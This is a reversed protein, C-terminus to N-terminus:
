DGTPEENEWGRALRYLGFFIGAGLTTFTLVAAVTGFTAEPVAKFMFGVSAVVFLFILAFVAAM